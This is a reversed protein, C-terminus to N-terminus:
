DLFAVNRMTRSQTETNMMVRHWFPLTITAHDAHSVAGCAYGGMDRRMMRWAWRAASPDTKLLRKYAAPLLGNPHKSSVYVTEGGTRFLQEVMHPKGAGRRLPENRLVLKDDVVLSPEPIFFWEGQRRFARNKRANRKKISVNHSALAQRVPAPQLADMAQRVSSVGGPVAAVFWEREDHGCLFRDLQPKDGPKRVFLLLHRQKPESQMVTVDLTDSLHTPVRLEFFEGNSDRQIDLSYDTPNIWSRDGQRWRSPIERVKVRAGMQAFGSEIPQTNM